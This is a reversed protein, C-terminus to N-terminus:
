KYSRKDTYKTECLMKEIQGGTDMEFECSSTISVSLLQGKAIDVQFVANGKTKPKIKESMNEDSYAITGAFHMKVTAIGEVINEVKCSGDAEEVTLKYGPIKAEKEVDDSEVEVERKDAFILWCLLFNSPGKIVKKLFKENPKYKKGIEVEGDPFISARDPTIFDFSEFMTTNNLNSQKGKGKAVLWGSKPFFSYTKGSPFFKSEKDNDRGLYSGSLKMLVKGYNRQLEFNGKKDYKTMKETYPKTLTMKMDVELEDMTMKMDMVMTSEVNVKQGKEVKSVKAFSIVSSEDDGAFVTVILMFIIMVSFIDKITFNM